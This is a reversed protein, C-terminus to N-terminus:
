SQKRYRAFSLGALGLSLLIVTGPEPVDALPKTVVNSTGYLVLWYNPTADIRNAWNSDTVWTYGSTVVTGGGLTQNSGGFQDTGTWSEFTEKLGDGMVM